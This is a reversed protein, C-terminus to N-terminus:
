GKVVIRSLRIIVKGSAPRLFKTAPTYKTFLLLNGIESTMQGHPIYYDVMSGQGDVEVEILTDDNSKTRAGFDAVNDVSAETSLATPKDNGPDHLFGLSSIMMGFM